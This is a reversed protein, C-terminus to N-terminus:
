ARRERLYIIISDFYQDDIVERILELRYKTVGLMMFVTRINLLETTPDITQCQITMDHGCSCETNVGNNRLARVIDRVPEEINNIYWDDGSMITDTYGTM